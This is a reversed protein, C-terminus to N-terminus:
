KRKRWQLIEASLAGAPSKERSAIYRAVAASQTQTNM